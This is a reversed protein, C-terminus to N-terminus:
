CLVLKKTVKTLLQLVRSYNQIFQPYFNHFGLIAQVEKPKGPVKWNVVAQVTEPNIRIGNVRVIVELYKVEEKNYECKESKLYLGAEKLLTMITGIHEESAKLHDIYILINDLFASCFIDLFPHLSDNIFEQFSEPANTLGFPMVLSEFLGYQTRFAMKWKNAEEQRIINLRDHIDLKTYYHATSHRLLTEQVLPLPYWNKIMGDNLGQYDVCVRLGGGQEPAFLIPARCQSSSSPIFGKSL